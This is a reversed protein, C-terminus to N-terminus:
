IRWLKTSPTATTRWETAKTGYDRKVDRWSPFPGNFEDTQIFKVDEGASPLSVSMLLILAIAARLM